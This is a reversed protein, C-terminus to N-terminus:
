AYDVTERMQERLRRAIWAHVASGPIRRACGIKIACRERWTTLEILEGADIGAEGEDLRRMPGVDMLLSMRRRM